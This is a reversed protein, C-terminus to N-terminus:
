EHMSKPSDFLVFCVNEHNKQRAVFECVHM